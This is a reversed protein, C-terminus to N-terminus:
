GIYDLIDMTATTTYIKAIQIRIEEQVLSETFVGVGVLASCREYFSLVGNRSCM